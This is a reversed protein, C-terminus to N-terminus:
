YSRGEGNKDGYKKKKYEILGMRVMEEVFESLNTKSEQDMIDTIDKHVFGSMSISLKRVM